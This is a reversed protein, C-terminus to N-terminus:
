ARAAAKRGRAPTKAPVTCSWRDEPWPVATMTWVSEPEVGGRIVGVQRRERIDDMLGTRVAMLGTRGGTLGTAKGTTAAVLEENKTSQVAFDTTCMKIGAGM